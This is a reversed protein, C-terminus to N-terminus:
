STVFGRVSTWVGPLWAYWPSERTHILSRLTGTSVRRNGQFVLLGVVPRHGGDGCFAVGPVGMFISLVCLFYRRLRRQGIWATVM